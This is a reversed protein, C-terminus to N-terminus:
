SATLGRGMFVWEGGTRVFGYFVISAGDVLSVAEVFKGTQINIPIKIISGEPSDIPLYKMAEHLLMKMPSSKIFHVM